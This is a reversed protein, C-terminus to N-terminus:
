ENRYMWYPERRRLSNKGDDNKSRFIANLQKVLVLFNKKM